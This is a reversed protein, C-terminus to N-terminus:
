SSWSAGKLYKDIFLDERIQHLKCYQDENDIIVEGNLELYILDAYKIEVDNVCVLEELREGYNNIIIIEASNSLVKKIRIDFASKGYKYIITLKNM